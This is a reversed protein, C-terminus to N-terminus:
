RICLERTKLRVYKHLKNITYLNKPKIKKLLKFENKNLIKYLNKYIEDYKIYGKLYYNVIEDNATILVTEFLSINKPIYNKFNLCPFKNFNPKNLHLNNLIKFNLDKSPICKNVDSYISNFIPIKMNTEHVLLKIIGNKFKIISHLYSKPHIVIKIKSFSINFIRQAEIIEFVKNMMTSSDISIKQGMSWSPHNLMKKRSIYKIKKQPINLLPGGSATIYIKEVNDTNFCNLTSWISFHESDVPIFKTKNKKLEKDVLNWACILAEKNAIAIKKTYKIIKMTPELGSLGTISSMVYDAKKKFIKNFSYFDNYVNIKKNKLKKKLILFKKKNIIILNKVSFLKQQKMLENINNNTSLLIIETKKLNKRFINITNKGISGTSGLIAIKQKM